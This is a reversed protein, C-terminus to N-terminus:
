LAFISLIFSVFLRLLTVQFFHGVKLNLYILLFNICLYRFVFGIIIYCYLSCLNIIFDSFSIIKGIGSVFAFGKWLLLFQWPYLLGEILILYNHCPEKTHCQCMNWWNRMNCQLKVQTFHRSIFWLIYEFFIEWIKSHVMLFRSIILKWQDFLNRLIVLILYSTM